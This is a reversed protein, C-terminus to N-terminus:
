YERENNTSIHCYGKKSILKARDKLIFFGYVRGGLLGEGQVRDSLFLRLLGHYYLSWITLSM